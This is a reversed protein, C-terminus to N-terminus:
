KEEQQEQQQEEERCPLELRLRHEECHRREWVAWLPGRPEEIVQYHPPPELDQAGQGDLTGCFGVIPEFLVGDKDINKEILVTLGFYGDLHKLSRAFQVFDSANAISTVPEWTTWQLDVKRVPHHRTSVNDNHQLANLLERRRVM